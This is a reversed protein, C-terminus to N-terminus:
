YQFIRESIKLFDLNTDVLDFTNPIKERWFKEHDLFGPGIELIDKNDFNILSNQTIKYANTKILKGLQLQSEQQHQSHIKQLHWTSTHIVAVM